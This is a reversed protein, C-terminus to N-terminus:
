RKECYFRLELPRGFPRLVIEDLRPSLWRVFRQGPYGGHVRVEEVRVRAFLAPYRHRFKDSDEAFYDMSRPTFFRVHELDTFANEHRYDPARVELVGGPRLVRALEAVARKVDPVHELLHSALVYDFASERWPLTHVDARVTGPVREVDVNVWGPRVDRGCGVNLRRGAPEEPSSPAAGRSRVTM